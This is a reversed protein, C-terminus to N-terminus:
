AVGHLCGVAAQAIQEFLQTQGMLGILHSLKDGLVLPSTAVAAEHIRRNPRGTLQCKQVLGNGLVGIPGPHGLPQLGIQCSLSTKEVRCPDVPADIWALQRQHCRVMCEKHNKPADIQKGEVLTRSVMWDLPNAGTSPLWLRALGAARPYQKQPM